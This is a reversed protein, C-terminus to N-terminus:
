LKKKDANKAKKGDQGGIKFSLRSVVISTAFIAMLMSAAALPKILYSDMGIEYEVLVDKGHADIWNRGHITVTSRGASDMYTKTTSQEISEVPFPVHVNLIKSGEPLVIRVEVNAYITDKMPQIAPVKLIYNGTTGAMKRVFQNLQVNYGLYFTTKWGGFLPFRPRLILVQKDPRSRDIASTSINGIEDRFYMDTALKPIDANFHTLLATGAHQANNRQYEIRSFQGKLQAGKNIFSYHEEVALNSAWHSLEIDRRFKDMWVVPGLFEFQVEFMGHELLNVNEYPGLVIQNNKIEPEKEEPHELVELKSNPTLVTTKQKNAAYATLAYPNGFYVMKQKETQRVEAPFPRIQDVLATRVTIQMKDGPKLPPSLKVKYYQIERNEDVVDKVVELKEKTKRNEAEINALSSTYFMDLPFFYDNVDEEAINLLAASTTERMISTTLDLTRLLNTIRVNQKIITEGLDESSWAQMEDTNASATAEEALAALPSVLLVM